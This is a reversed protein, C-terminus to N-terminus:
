GNQDLGKETKTDMYTDMPPRVLSQLEEDSPHNYRQFVSMTKHGSAKMIKFYDHGQLRWNNICTHRLDHFRFDEIGPNKCATRFSKKIAALPHGDMTFVRGHITRPMAKLMEILGQHLPVVRAEDTKTMGAKLRV